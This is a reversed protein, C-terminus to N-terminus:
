ARRFELLCRDGTVDTVADLTLGHGTGLARFEEITRERGGFIALM